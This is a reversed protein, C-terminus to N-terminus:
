GGESRPNSPGRRALFARAAALREATDEDDWPMLIEEPTKGTENLRALIGIARYLDLLDKELRRAMQRRRTIPFRKVTGM